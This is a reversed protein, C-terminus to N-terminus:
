AILEAHLGRSRATNAFEISRVREPDEIVVMLHPNEDDYVAARVGNLLADRLAERNDHTTNEDVHM